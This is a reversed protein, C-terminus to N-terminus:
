KKKYSSNIYIMLNYDLGIGRNCKKEVKYSTPQVFVMELNNYFSVPLENIYISVGFKEDEEDLLGTSFSGGLRDFIMKMSLVTISRTRVISHVSRRLYGDSLTKNYLQNLSYGTAKKLIEDIPSYASFLPIAEDKVIFQDVRHYVEKDQYKYLASYIKLLPSHGPETYEIKDKRDSVSSPIFHVSDIRSIKSLFVMDYLLIPVNDLLVFPVDESYICSFPIHGDLTSKVGQYNNLSFYRGMMLNYYGGYNGGWYKRFVSDIEASPQKPSYGIQGISLKHSGVLIIIVLLVKKIM